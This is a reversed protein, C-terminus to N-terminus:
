INELLEFNEGPKEVIAYRSSFLIYIPGTCSFRDKLKRM